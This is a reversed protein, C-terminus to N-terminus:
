IKIMQHTLVSSLFFCTYSRFTMNQWTIKGQPYLKDSEAMPDRNSGESKPCFGSEAFIWRLLSGVIAKLNPNEQNRIILILTSKLSHECIPCSSRRALTTNELTYTRSISLFFTVAIFTSSFENCLTRGSLDQFEGKTVIIAWVQRPSDYDTIDM